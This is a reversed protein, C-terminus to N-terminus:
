SGYSISVNQVDFIAERGEIRTSPQGDLPLQGPVFGNPAASAGGPPTHPPPATHIRVRHRVHAADPGATDSRNPSRM